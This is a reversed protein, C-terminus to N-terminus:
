IVAQGANQTCFKLPITAHVTKSYVLRQCDTYRQTLLFRLSQSHLKSTLQSPGKIMLVLCHDRCAMGKGPADGLFKNTDQELNSRLASIEVFLLQERRKALPQARNNWRQGPKRARDLEM